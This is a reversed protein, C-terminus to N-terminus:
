KSILTLITVAIALGVLFLGMLRTNRVEKSMSIPEIRWNIKAYFKQQIEITKQPRLAVFLGVIMIVIVFSINIALVVTM